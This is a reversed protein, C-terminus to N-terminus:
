LNRFGVIWWVLGALALLAALLLVRTSTGGGRSVGPMGPEREDGIGGRADIAALVTRLESALVAAAQHRSDPNPSLAKLVLADLDPPVLHNTASPAAAGGHLPRRATLMEFLIAGASYVDSRDDPAEGRAEEPSNYDRLTYGSDTQDFGGHATLEFAPIKAHGKSTVAISEPSLGGHLFGSAHASALADSIQIATEVARRVNLPRGAMEARLSQGKVFEFALYVRSDQEGADFLTTVNPHSIASLARATGILSTREAASPTFDVPLLRIAVTRGLKTDRARYVTGPGSPELQELLNYHAVVGLPAAVPAPVPSPPSPGVTSV